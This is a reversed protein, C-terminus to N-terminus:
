AGCREPRAYPGSWTGTESDWDRRCVLDAEAFAYIANFAAQHFDPPSLGWLPAAIQRGYSNNALDMGRHMRSNLNPWECCNLVEHRDAIDKAMDVGFEYTLLANLMAHLFANARSGDPVDDYSGYCRGCMWDNGRRNDDLFKPSQEMYRVADERAVVSLQMSRQCVEAHSLTEGRGTVVQDSWYTMCYQEEANNHGPVEPGWPDEFFPIGCSGASDVSYGGGYSSCPDNYEPDGPRLGTPDTRNLPDNDAHPYISLMGTATM